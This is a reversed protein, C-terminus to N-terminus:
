ALEFIGIQRESLTFEACLRDIRAFEDAHQQRFAEYSGRDNWVDITVYRHAVAPDRLLLTGRYARSQQFFLAWTGTSAYHSEFVSVKEPRVVYEWLIQIM